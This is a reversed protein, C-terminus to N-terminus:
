VATNALGICFGWLRPWTAFPDHALISLQLVVNGLPWNPLTSTLLAPGLASEYTWQLLAACCTAPCPLGLYVSPTSHSLRVVFVSSCPCIAHLSFLSLTLPPYLVPSISFLNSMAVPLPLYLQESLHALSLWYLFLRLLQWCLQLDLAGQQIDHPM